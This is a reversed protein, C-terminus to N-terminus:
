VRLLVTCLDDYVLGREEDRGGGGGERERELLSADGLAFGNDRVRSPM